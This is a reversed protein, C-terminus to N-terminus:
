VIELDPVKQFHKKNLTALTLGKNFATAAIIADILDTGFSAKIKGAEKSIEETLPVLNIGTFITELELKATPKEWVGTGSYLETHTVISAYLEYGKESFAYLATGSKDEQRLFDIIISTDLLIGRM